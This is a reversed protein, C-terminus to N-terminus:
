SGPATPTSAAAAKATSSAPATWLIHDVRMRVNLLEQGLVPILLRGPASPRDGSDNPASAGSSAQSLVESRRPVATKQNELTIFRIIFFQPHANLSNLVRKLAAPTAQFRIEMPYVKYLGGTGEVVSAALVEDSGVGGPTPGSEEIFVRRIDQLAHIRAEFLIRSLAEIGALQIGLERTAGAPPSALRYRKFAFYFDDGVQVKSSEALKKLDERKEILLQKWADPGLGKGDPGIYPALAAAAGALKPEMSADLTTTATLNDKVTKLNAPSPFIGKASLSSLEQMVNARDQVAQDLQTSTWFWAGGGLLGIVAFAILASILHKPLATM